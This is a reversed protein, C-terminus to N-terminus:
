ANEPGVVTYNLRIPIQVTDYMLVEDPYLEAPHPHGRGDDIM